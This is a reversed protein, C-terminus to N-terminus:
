GLHTRLFAAVLDVTPDRDFAPDEHGAGGLVVLTSEVNADTLAEHLRRSHRVSVIRDHDGHMILFPPAGARVQHRPSAGRAAAPNDRLSEIGLLQEEVRRSLVREETPTRTASEVLDTPAFWDVVADVSASQEPDSGVDGEWEPDGGTLGALAALHGGASAGWAACRSGDIGLEGAHARLWRISAKVDHLQAPFTAVDSLRYDICAVAFGRGALAKARTQAHDHRSGVAWGGGHLYVVVPPRQTDRHTPRYLDLLLERGGVEAYPLDRRRTVGGPEASDTM